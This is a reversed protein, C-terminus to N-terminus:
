STKTLAIESYVIFVCTDGEPRSEHSTQRSLDLLNCFRPLFIWLTPTIGPIGVGLGCTQFACSELLQRQQAGHQSVCRFM